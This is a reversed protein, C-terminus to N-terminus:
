GSLESLQQAIVNPANGGLEVNWALISITTTESAANPTTLSEIEPASPPTATRSDCGAFAAFLLTRALITRGSM